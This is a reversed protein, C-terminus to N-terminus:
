AETKKTDNSSTKTKMYESPTMGVHKKFSASFHSSSCFGYEAALRTLDSQPTLQRRIDEIKRCMIYHGPSIGTEKKFRHKFGSLSLGTQKALAELSIDDCLHKQISACALSIVPSIRTDAIDAFHLLQYLIAVISNAAEYPSIAPPVQFVQPLLHRLLRTVSTNDTILSHGKIHYLNNKLYDASERSLFLFNDSDHISLQIWFLEGAAYPIGNSGHVENPKTIFASGGSIPYERGDYYLLLQGSLVYAIEFADRHFHEQPAEHVQHKKLWGFTQVGPIKLENETLIIHDPDRRYYDNWAIATNM